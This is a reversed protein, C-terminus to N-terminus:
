SIKFMKMRTDNFISVVEDTNDVILVEWNSYRQDLVSQLACGLFHSHNHTPIVVSIVPMSSM